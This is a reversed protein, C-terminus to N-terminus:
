DVPGQSGARARPDWGDMVLSWWRGIVLSRDGVIWWWRIYLFYLKLIYSYFIHILFIMYIYINIYICIYSYIHFSEICTFVYLYHIYQPGPGGRPADTCRLPLSVCTLYKNRAAQPGSVWYICMYIYIYTDIYVLM